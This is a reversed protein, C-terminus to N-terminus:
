DSLDIDIPLEIKVAVPKGNHMGPKWKPMKELVEIVNMDFTQNISRIVRTMTIEGNEDIIFEVFFSTNTRESKNLIPYEIHNNLYNLFENWGGEFEPMIDVVTPADLGIAKSRIKWDKNDIVNKKEILGFNKISIITTHRVRKNKEKKIFIISDVIFDNPALEISKNNFQIKIISDNLIENIKIKSSLYPLTDISKINAYEWLLIKDNSTLHVLGDYYFVKKIPFYESFDDVNIMIEDCITRYPVVKKSDIKIIECKSYEDHQILLINDSNPKQGKSLNLMVIILLLLTTIRKM